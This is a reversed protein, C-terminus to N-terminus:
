SIMKVSFPQALLLHKGPASNMISVLNNTKPQIKRLHALCNSEVHARNLPCVTHILQHRFSAEFQTVPLAGKDLAYWSSQANVQYHPCQVQVANPGISTDAFRMQSRATLLAASTLLDSSALLSTRSGDLTNFVLSKWRWDVRSRWLLQDQLLNTM